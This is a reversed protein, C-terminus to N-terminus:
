DEIQKTEINYSGKGKNLIDDFVDEYKKYFAVCNNNAPCIIPYSIRDISPAEFYNKMYDKWNSGINYTEFDIYKSSLTDFQILYGNHNDDWYVFTYLSNTQEMGRGRGRYFTMMKNSEIWDYFKDLYARVQQMKNYDKTDNARKLLQWIIHNDHFERMKSFLDEYDPFSFSDEENLHNVFKIVDRKGYSEVLRRLINRDKDIQNM